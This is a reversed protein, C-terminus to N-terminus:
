IIGVEKKKLYVVVAVVAFMGFLIPLRGKGAPERDILPPLPVFLVRNSMFEFPVKNEDTSNYIATESADVKILM